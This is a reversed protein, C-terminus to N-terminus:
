RIFPPAKHKPDSVAIVYVSEGGVAAQDEAAHLDGKRLPKQPMRVRVHQQVGNRIRQEAGSRCPIDALM